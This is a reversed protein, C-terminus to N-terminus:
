KLTKGCLTEYDRTRSILIRVDEPAMTRGAAYVKLLFHLFSGFFFSITGALTLSPTSAALLATEVLESDLSHKSPRQVGDKALAYPIEKTM